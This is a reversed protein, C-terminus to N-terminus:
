QFKRTVNLTNMTRKENYIAPVGFFSDKKIDKHVPLEDLNYEITTNPLQKATAVTQKILDLKNTM